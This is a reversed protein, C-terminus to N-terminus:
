IRYLAAIAVTLCVRMYSSKTHLNTNPEGNVQVGNEHDNEVDNSEAETIDPLMLDSHNEEM